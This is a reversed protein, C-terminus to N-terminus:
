STAAADQAILRGYRDEESAADLDELAKFTVPISMNKGKEYKLAGVEDCYARPLEYQAPFNGYPSTGRFLFAFEAVTAGRHLSIERTGITGVGPATDTVTGGLADALNELTAEALKTKIVITEDTRTAKVPGTRQDTRVLEVKDDSNVDVGDQTDGLERWSGSPSATLAPFATGVPAIYLRGVGTLLSYADM